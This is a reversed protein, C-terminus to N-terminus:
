LLDFVPMIQYLSELVECSVSSAMLMRRALMAVAFIGNEKLFRIFDDYWRLAQDDEKVSKFIRKRL